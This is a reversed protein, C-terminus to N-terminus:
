RSAGSLDYPDDVAVDPNCLADQPAHHVLEHAVRVDTFRSLRVFEDMLQGNDDVYDIVM